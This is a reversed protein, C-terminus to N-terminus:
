SATGKATSKQVPGTPAGVSRGRISLEGSAELVKSVRDYFIRDQATIDHAYDLDDKCAQARTFYPESANIRKRTTSGFKAQRWADYRQTDTIEIDTEIVADFASQATCEGLFYTIREPAVVLPCRLVQRGFEYRAEDNPWPPLQELGMYSLWLEMDRRPNDRFQEFITLVYSV